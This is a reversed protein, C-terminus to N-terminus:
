GDDYRGQVWISSSTVQGQAGPNRGRGQARSTEPEPPSIPKDSVPHFWTTTPTDESTQGKMGRAHQFPYSKVVDGIVSSFRDGDAKVAACIADIAPRDFAQIGRGLAYSLFKGVVARRFDDKRDLLIARFEVPTKFSKGEGSADVPSGKSHSM